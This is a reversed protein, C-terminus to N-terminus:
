WVEEFEEEIDKGAEFDYLTISRINYYYSWYSELAQIYARRANISARQNTSLRIIDSQGNMYRRRTIDYVANAITDAEMAGEVLQKQLNFEEVTLIVSERFDIEEQQIQADIVRKQM